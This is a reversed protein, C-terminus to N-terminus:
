DSYFVRFLEHTVVVSRITLYADIVLCRHLSFDLFHRRLNNPEVFFEPDIKDFAIDGVPLFPVNDRFIGLVVEAQVLYILGSTWGM